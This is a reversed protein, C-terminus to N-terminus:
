FISNQEFAPTQTPDMGLCANCNSNYELEIDDIEFLGWM